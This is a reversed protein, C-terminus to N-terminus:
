QRAKIVTIDGRLIVGEGIDLRLVYYYTGDPLDDGNSTTGQWDNNYPKAEYVIDGWRNFVILENDPYADPNLLLQDFILADNLGDGNPTIGNPVDFNGTTDRDIDVEVLGESCLEPCLANCIEYSFEDSAPSLLSIALTYTLSGGGNETVRGLNPSAGVSVTWESVGALQDNASVDLTASNQGRIVTLTDLVAQPAREPTVVLTDTSYNPCGDQSLSWILINPGDALGIVATSASAPNAISLGGPSSWSGTTNAPLTGQNGSVSVETGCAAADQSAQAAVLSPDLALELVASTDSCMTQMNFVVLQYSGATSVTAIAQDVPDQTVPGGSLTIWQFDYLAGQTSQSGNLTVQEGCGVVNSSATAEAVPAAPDLAVTVERSAECGNDASVLTVTYTGAADVDVVLAGTAPMVMGPGAWNIAEFDGPSGSQSADLSVTQGPCGLFPAEAIFVHPPLTDAAVSITATSDCGNASSVLTLQYTGPGNVSANLTGDIQTAIGGSVTSWSVESFNGPLGSPAASLLLSEDRCQFVTDTVDFIIPPADFDEAVDITDSAVCNTNTNTVILQYAGPMSAMATIATSIEVGNPDLWQYQITDGTASGEGTLMAMDQICNIDGSSEAAVAPLDRRDNVVLENIGVCGSTTDTAMLTITDGTYVQVTFLDATTLVEGEWEFVLNNVDVITDNAISFGVSVTDVSCDLELIGANSPAGFVIQAPIGDASVAVADTNVCGNETNLVQIVYVGPLTVTQTIDTGLPEGAENTWLYQINPGQASGSGDLTGETNVCVLNQPPGADAPPEVLNETVIVTDRDVCQSNVNTVVFEYIGGGTIPLFDRTPDGTIMGDIANWQYTVRILSDNQTSQTADLTDLENYCNIIISENAIIAEPFDQFAEVTRVITGSCGSNIDTVTLQYTGAADFVTVTDNTGSVINGGNSATWQIAYTGFPLEVNTRVETTENLCTLDDPVGTTFAPPLTDLVVVVTDTALCGSITDLVSFLYNGELAVTATLAGNVPLNLDLNRWEYRYPGGQASGTADLTVSDTNCDLTDPPAVEILPPQNNVGVEVSSSSVCGNQDSTVVLEILGPSTIEPNLTAETGPEIAAGNSAIWEFTFADPTVNTVVGELVVNQGNCTFDTSPNGVIEVAAVAFDTTVVTTDSNSCGNATNFVQFTYVGVQGTMFTSDTTIPNGDSGIWAYTLNDTVDGAFGTLTAMENCGLFTTDTGPSAVAIPPITDTVVEVSDISVCGTTAIEVELFYFGTDQGIATTAANSPGAIINGLPDKWTYLITDGQTSGSADLTVEDRACTIALEEGAEADPFVAPTLLVTDTVACGTNVDKVELIFRGPGQGLLTRTNPNSCVRGGQSATWTYMIDQGQSAQPSIFTCPPDCSSVKDPGTNVFLDAGLAPIYLTDTIKLPPASQDLITVVVFGESLFRASDIFQPPQTEWSYIYPGVGGEVVVKARGDGAGPCTEPTIIVDVLFLKDNICVEGPSDLLSGDGNLTTVAPQPADSVAVEYCSDPTGLLEFCLEFIVTSDALALGAPASFDFGVSGVPQGGPDINLGPIAGPDVVDTLALAGPSWNITFSGSTINDFESVKVPVCVTDQIDGAISGIELYFGEPSLICYRSDSDTLGVNEGNSSTTIVEAEIPVDAIQLLDCIGPTADDPIRFCLTFIQEGPPLTVPSPATWTFTIQGGSAGLLGFNGVTAGPLTLNQIGGALIFEIDNPEFALSFQMSEVEEFNIVSFDFCLTDGPQGQLDDTIDMIVGAPQIVEKECNTPNIGINPGNNVQALDEDNNIFIFPSSGGLGIVDFCVEFLVDDQNRSTANGDWAMGLIGNGTNATNFTIGGPLGVNQTGTFSLVTPNWEMLFALDTVNQFNGGALVPICIQSNLTDPDGCDASIQIGTPNCPGVAVEGAFQGVAIDDFGNQFDNTAQPFFFAQGPQQDAIQVPFAMNCSGDLLRLCLQFILTSDPLSIGSSPVPANWSVTVSGPLVGAAQGPVGFSSQALNTLNQPIFINEYTAKNADWIIPFQFSTLADMGFVRFDICVLDGENAQEDSIDIIFPRVCTSVLATDIEADEIGINTCGAGKRKIDPTIPNATAPIIIDTAAGYNGLATFCVQFAITGDAVTVGVAAPNNCNINLMAEWDVLLRGNTVQTFNGPGMNPLGYAQTNNFQLVTSDWQIFFRTSLIDTFNEVIVDACIEEGTCPPTGEPPVINITPQAFAATTLALGVVLTAVIKKMSIMVKPPIIKDKM